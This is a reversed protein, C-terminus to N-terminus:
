ALGSNRLAQAAPIIVIDIIDFDFHIIVNCITVEQEQKFRKMVKGTSCDILCVIEGGCTAV